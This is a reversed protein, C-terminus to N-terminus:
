LIGPPIAGIEFGGVVAPAPELAAGFQNAPWRIFDPETVHGVIHVLPARIPISSTIIAQTGPPIRLPGGLTDATHRTSTGPSVLEFHCPARRTTRKRRDRAVRVVAEADHLCNVM